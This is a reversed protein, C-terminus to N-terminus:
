KQRNETGIGTTQPGVVPRPDHDTIDWYTKKSEQRRELQAEFLADQIGAVDWGGYVGGM